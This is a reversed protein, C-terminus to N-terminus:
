VPEPVRARPVRTAATMDALTIAALATRIAENVPDWRGHLPCLSKAACSDDGDVCATLAIPGDIAAIM